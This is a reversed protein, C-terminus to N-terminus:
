GESLCIGPYRPISMCICGGDCCGEGGGSGGGFFWGGGDMRCGVLYVCVSTLYAMCDYDLWSSIQEVNVFMVLLLKDDDKEYSFAL